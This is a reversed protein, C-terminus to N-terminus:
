RSIPWENRAADILQLQEIQSLARPFIAVFACTFSGQAQGFNAGLSVTLASAPPHADIRSDNNYNKYEDGFADTTFRQKNLPSGASAAVAHALLDVPTAFQGNSINGGAVDSYTQMYHAPSAIGINDNFHVEPRHQSAADMVYIGRNGAGVGDNAATNTMRYVVFISSTYPMAAPLVGTPIVATFIGQLAPNANGVTRVVPTGFVADAADYVPEVGVNVLNFVVGNIFGTWSTVDAGSLALTSTARPDWAEVAGLERVLSRVRKSRGGRSDVFGGLSAEAGAGARCVAGVYAADDTIVQNRLLGPIYSASVGRLLVGSSGTVNEVNVTGVRDADVIYTANAFISDRLTYISAGVEDGGALLFAHKESEDYSAGAITLYNGGSHGCVQWTLGTRATHNSGKYITCSTASLVEAIKYVGTTKDPSLPALDTLRIWRGRDAIVDLGTLGTLTSFAGSAVGLAGALGSDMGTTYGFGSAFNFGFQSPLSYWRDPAAVTTSQLNAGVWNIQSGEVIAGLWSSFHADVREFTGQALNGVVYGTQCTHVLVDTLRAHQHNSTPVFRIGIGQSDTQVQGFGRIEIDDLRQYYSLVIDIGSGFTAGGAGHIAFGKLLQHFTYSADGCTLAFPRTVSDPSVVFITKTSGAGVLGPTPTNVGTGPFTPLIQGAPLTFRGAPVLVDYCWAASESTLSYAKERAAEIAEVINDDTLIGDPVFQTVDIVGRQTQEDFSRDIAARERLNISHGRRHGARRADFDTAM